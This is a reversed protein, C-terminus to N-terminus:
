REPQVIRDKTEQRRVVGGTSDGGTEDQKVAEAAVTSTPDTPLPSLQFRLGTLLVFQGVTGGFRPAFLWVHCARTLRIYTIQCREHLEGAWSHM